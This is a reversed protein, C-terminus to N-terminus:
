LGRAAKYEQSMAKLQAKSFKTDRWLQMDAELRKIEARVINEANQVMKAKEDDEFVVENYIDVLKAAKAKAARFQDVWGFYVKKQEEFIELAYM